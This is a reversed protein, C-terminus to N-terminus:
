RAGLFEALAIAIQDQAARGARKGHGKKALDNVLVAFAVPHRADVAVFGALTTVQALTGTKARVRGTAPMAKMRRRLTGDVGATSLSAALDVGIRFDSWAHQLVGVLQRPSVASADFLGSGNEYRFAGASLGMAETLYHRVAALGDNWTAPRPEALTAAGITKLLTEATNNNSHKGLNRIVEALEASDHEALVVADAPVPERVLKKKRVTIGREALVARLAAAAFATPDSIRRRYYRVDSTAAIQGGLRLEFGGNAEVTDIRVRTRGSRTTQVQGTLTAYHGPPHLSVVAPGAGSPNPRIIVTLANSKLSLAGVPARFAAQELPQADYHPPLLVDDFLTDDVALAGNIRRIGRDALDSALARLDDTQLTPDGGGAIWLNGVVTDGDVKPASIVTRFRFAPGLIHLAAATTLIKTNSALNYAGDADHQYLTDGSTLDVAYVGIRGPGLDAAAEALIMEIRASLGTRDGAAVMPAGADPPAAPDVQQARGDPAIVSLAAIMAAVRWTSGM